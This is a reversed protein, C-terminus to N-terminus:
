ELNEMHHDNLDNLNLDLGSLQSNAKLYGNLKFNDFTATVAKTSDGAEYNSALLAVKVGDTHEEISAQDIQDGNIYFSAQDGTQSIKIRIGEEIKASSTWDIVTKFDNSTVRHVAYEQAIPNIRFYYYDSETYNFIFGFAGM